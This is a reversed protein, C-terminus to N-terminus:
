TKSSSNSKQAKLEALVTAKAEKEAKAQASKEVRQVREIEQKAKLDAKRKEELPFKHLQERVQDTTLHSAYFKDIMSQSTRCNRALALTNVNGRILNMMIATHRLSYCTINKGTREEIGSEIVIRNIMRIIISMVTTRNKYSPLFVYDDPGCPENNSKRYKLIEQYIFRCTPMTHVDTATTKTAPHSLVLWKDKDDVKLKVHKHKLVRIDSPRIFSNVMFQILYKYEITLAVGRVVTNDKALKEAVKHFEEYEQITLYDRKQATKLRGVIRPFTPIHKMLDNALAFKFIKSIVVMFHKISSTSLNRQKLKEVFQTLQHNTITDIEQEGFFPLIDSKYRSNETRFVEKNAINENSKMYRQSVVAFSKKKDSVKNSKASFLIDEYFNVAFKKAEKVSESKTSKTHYRGNYYLRVWYFSSADTKYVVLKNPYGSITEKTGEIPTLRNRVKPPAEAVKIM